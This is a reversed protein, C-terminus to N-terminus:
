PPETGASNKALLVPKKMDESTSLLPQITLDGSACRKNVDHLQSPSKGLGQITCWSIYVDMESICRPWVFSLCCRRPHFSQRPAHPTSEVLILWETSVSKAAAYGLTLRIACTSSGLFLLPCNKMALPALCRQQALWKRNAIANSGMKRQSWFAIM